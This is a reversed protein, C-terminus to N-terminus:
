SFFNRNILNSKEINKIFNYEKMYFSINNFNYISDSNIYFAFGDDFVLNQGFPESFCNDNDNGFKSIIINKDILVPKKENKNEMNNNSKNGKIINNNDSTDSNGFIQRNNNEINKENNNNNKQTKDEKIFSNSQENNILNNKEDISNNNIKNKNNIKSYNNDNASESLHLLTDIIYKKEDQSNTIKPDKKKRIEELIDSLNKISDKQFNFEDNSFTKLKLLFKQAHSRTQACTRSGIYNQIVKWKKGNDIFANIFKIREELTWRGEKINKKKDQMLKKKFRIIKKQKEINNEEKKEKEELNLENKLKRESEEKNNNESCIKTINFHFKCKKGLFSKKETSKDDGGLINILNMSISNETSLANLSYKRSDDLSDTKPSQSINTSNSLMKPLVLELTPKEKGKNLVKISLEKNESKVNQNIHNIVFLKKM